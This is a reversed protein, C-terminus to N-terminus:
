DPWDLIKQVKRDKPYQGKYTCCHGVVVVETCLCENEMQLLYWWSEQCM